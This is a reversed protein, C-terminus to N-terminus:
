EFTVTRVMRASAEAEAGMDMGFDEIIMEGFFELTAETEFSMSRAHGAAMDWLLEGELEVAMGIEITMEVGMDAGESEAIEAILDSLDFSEDIEAALSIVGVEVGELERIGEYTCTIQGMEEDLMDEISDMFGAPAEDMFEDSADLAGAIDMGPMLLTAAETSGITWSDGAEVAGDPLLVRMDMDEALGSLNDEDMEDDGEVARAYAQEDEDWTFRVSKGEVEEMSDEDSDGTGDEFSANMVDYSRLLVNPRGDGMSVYEDTVVIEIEATGQAESLDFDAGMMAPDVEEGNMMIVLDELAFEAETTFTKTLALGEEPHFTIRDAPADFALLALASAALTPVAFAIPLRM